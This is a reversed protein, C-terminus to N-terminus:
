RKLLAPKEDPANFLLFLATLIEPIQEIMSDVLEDDKLFDAFEPEDDFLGSAVMIPLLLESVEDESKAFWAQEEM